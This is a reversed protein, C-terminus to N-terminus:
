LGFCARLYTAACSQAFIIRSPDRPDKLAKAADATLRERRDAERLLLIGSDSSINDGEFFAEIERRGARSFLMKSATRKPM